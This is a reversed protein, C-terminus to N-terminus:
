TSVSAAAITEVRTPILSQRYQGLQVTADILNALAVKLAAALAATVCELQFPGILVRPATSRSAHRIVSLASLGSHVSRARCQHVRSCQYIRRQHFRLHAPGAQHQYRSQLRSSHATMLLKHMAMLEALCHQMKSMCQRHISHFKMQLEEGAAAVAAPRIEAVKVVARQQQFM